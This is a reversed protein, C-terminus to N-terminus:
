HLNTCLVEELSFCILSGGGLSSFFVKQVKGENTAFIEMPVKSRLYMPFQMSTKTKGRNDKKNGETTKKEQSHDSRSSDGEGGTLTVSQPSGRDM